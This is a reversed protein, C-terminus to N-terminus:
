VVSERLMSTVNIDLIRDMHGLTEHDLYDLENCGSYSNDDLIEQFKEIYRDEDYMFDDLDVKVVFYECGKLKWRPNETDMNGNPLFAYNERIQAKIRVFFTM